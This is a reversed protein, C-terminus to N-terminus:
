TPHDIGSHIALSSQVEPDNSNESTSESSSSSSSESSSSSSYQLDSDDDSASATCELKSRKQIYQMRASLIDIQMRQVAKVVDRRHLLSRVVHAPMAHSMAASSALTDAADNGHKDRATVTGKAVDKCTSHGKVKSLAVGHARIQLCSHVQQWIDANRVNTWNMAAWTFRHKLCGQLM